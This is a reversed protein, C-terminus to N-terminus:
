KVEFRDLTGKMEAITSATEDSLNKINEMAYVQSNMSEGVYEVNRKNELGIESINRMSDRMKENVSSVASISKNFNSFVANISEIESAISSFTDRMEVVCANQEESIGMLEAVAEVSGASNKAIAAVISEIKLASNASQEALTKVAGAVVAFGKGHEGASAAEISANLSLLQTQKAVTKIEGIIHIIDTVQSDLQSIGDAAKRNKENVIKNKETLVSIKQEGSEKNRMIQTISGSAESIQSSLYEYDNLLQASIEECNGVGGAQAAINDSLGRVSDSTEKIGKYYTDVNHMVEASGRTVIDAANKAESVTSMIDDIFANFMEAIHGIEDSSKVELRRKLDGGGASINELVGTLEKLPKLMGFRIFFVYLLITVAILCGSVSAFMVLSGAFMKEFEIFQSNVFATNALYRSPDINLYLVYAPFGFRKIPKLYSISKKDPSWKIMPKDNKAANLIDPDSLTDLVKFPVASGSSRVNATLVLGTSEIINIFNIQSNNEIQAQLMRGISGSSELAAELVGIVNGKADLRPIATFKFIEGTEFKIKIASPLEPVNDDVIMRYGDWIDFLSVGIAASETSQTFVGDMGTIYLDNMGVKRALDSMEAGSIEGSLLRIQFAIAANLMTKDIEDEIDTLYGGINEAFETIQREIMKDDNDNLRALTGEVGRRIGRTVTMYSAAFFFLAAIIIVCSLLASKKSIMMM